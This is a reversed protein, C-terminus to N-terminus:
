TEEVALKIAGPGNPKLSTRELVQGLRAELAADVTPLVAGGEGAGEMLDLQPRLGEAAAVFDETFLKEPVSGSRTIGYRFARQTAEVAFAPLFGAYAKAIREFDLNHPLLHPQITAKVLREYGEADLEGIRVVADIRGPRLLAKDLDRVFNTTFVAMIEAGKVSVSDLADLLKVIEKRSKNKALVDLDEIQVVCPAYLRATKLAAYPDDTARVLIYTWGNEVAVQATLAGALSKGTGYPGELLVARRLPIGQERFTQSHRLPAWINAELQTEVDGAYVVSAKKTAYPNLFGPHQAADIANGRYISDTRLEEAVVDFFGEIRYRHKKPATCTLYFVLGHEADETFDLEFVANLPSFEIEGWPVQIERDHAIAISILRPPQKGFFSYTAKGTGRTGFVRMMARNFAAAGDWPRFPFTRSIEHENENEEQVQELYRIAQPLNGDMAAPLVFQTGQYILADESTTRRGLADLTAIIEARVRDEESKFKQKEAEETVATRGQIKQILLSRLGAAVGALLDQRDPGPTEAASTLATRGTLTM